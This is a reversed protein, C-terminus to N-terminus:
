NSGPSCQARKHGLVYGPGFTRQLAQALVDRTIPNDPTGGTENSLRQLFAKEAHQKNHVNQQSFHNLNAQLIKQIMNDFDKKIDAEVADSEKFAQGKILNRLTHQLHHSPSGLLDFVRGLPKLFNQTQSVNLAGVSLYWVVDIACDQMDEQLDERFGSDKIKDVHTRVIDYIKGYSARLANSGSFVKLLDTRWRRWDAGDATVTMNGIARELIGFPGKGEHGNRTVNDWNLVFVQRIISPERLYFVPRAGTWAASIGSEEAAAFMTTMTEGFLGHRYVHPLIGLLPYGHTVPVNSISPWLVNLM